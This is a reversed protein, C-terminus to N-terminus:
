PDWVEVVSRKTLPSINIESGVPEPLLDHERQQQRHKEDNGRQRGAGGLAPLYQGRSWRWDGGVVAALGVGVADTDVIRDVAPARRHDQQMATQRARVVPAILYLRQRRVMGDDRHVAAAVAAAGAIRPGVAVVQHGIVHHRQHVHQLHRFGVDDPPAIAPDEAEVQRHAVRVPDSLDKGKGGVGHGRPDDVADLLVRGEGRKDLAGAM